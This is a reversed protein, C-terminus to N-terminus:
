DLQVLRPRRPRLAFAASSDRRHKQLNALEWRSHFAKFDACKRRRALPRCTMEV